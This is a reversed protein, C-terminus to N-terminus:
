LPSHKQADKVSYWVVVYADRPLFFTDALRLFIRFYYAMRLFFARMKKGEIVAEEDYPPYFVFPFLPLRVPTM